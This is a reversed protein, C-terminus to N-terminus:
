RGPCAGGSGSRDHCYSGASGGAHTRKGRCARLLGKISGPWARTALRPIANHGVIDPSGPLPIQWAAMFRRSLNQGVCARPTPWPRRRIMEHPAAGPEWSLTPAHARVGALSATRQGCLTAATRCAPALGIVGARRGRLRQRRGGRGRPQCTHQIDGCDRRWDPRGRVVKRMGMAGLDGTIPRAPTIPAGHVRRQPGAPLAGFGQAMVRAHEAAARWINYQM